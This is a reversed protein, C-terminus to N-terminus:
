VGARGVGVGVRGWGGIAGGAAVRGDVFPIHLTIEVQVFATLVLTEDDSEDGGNAYHTESVDNESCDGEETATLTPLSRGTTIDLGSLVKGRTPHIVTLLIFEWGFAQPGRVIRGRSRV